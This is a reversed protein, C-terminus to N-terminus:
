KPCRCFFYVKQWRCNGTCCNEFDLELALHKRALVYIVNIIFSCRFKIGFITFGNFRVCYEFYTSAWEIVNGRTHLDFNRDGFLSVIESTRVISVSVTASVYSYKACMNHFIRSREFGYNKKWFQELSENRQLICFAMVRYIKQLVITLIPQLTHKRMMLLM